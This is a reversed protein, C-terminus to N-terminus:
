PAIRRASDDNIEKSILVTPKPVARKSGLIKEGMTEVFEATKDFPVERGARVSVVYGNAAAARIFHVPLGFIEATRWITEMQTLKFAESEIAPIHYGGTQYDSCIPDGKERESQVLM